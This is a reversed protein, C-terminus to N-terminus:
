SDKRKDQERINQLVNKSIFKRTEERGALAGIEYFREFIQFASLQEHRVRRSRLKILDRGVHWFDRDHNSRKWTILSNSSHIIM